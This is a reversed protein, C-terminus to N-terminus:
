EAEKVPEPEYSLRNIKEPRWISEIREKERAYRAYSPRYLKEALVLFSSDKQGATEDDRQKMPNGEM